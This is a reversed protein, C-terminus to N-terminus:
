FPSIAGSTSSLWATPKVAASWKPLSAADRNASYDPLISRHYVRYALSDLVSEGVGLEQSQLLFRDVLDGDDGQAM